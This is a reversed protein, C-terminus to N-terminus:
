ILAFVPNLRSQISRSKFKGGSSIDDFGCSLNTCYSRVDKIPPYLLSLRSLHKQTGCGKPIQAILVSLGAVGLKRLM